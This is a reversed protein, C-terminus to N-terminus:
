GFIVMATIAAGLWSVTSLAGSVFLFTRERNNLASFPKEIALDSLFHIVIANVFLIGVFFIKILFGINTLLYERAPYAMVGGSIIM